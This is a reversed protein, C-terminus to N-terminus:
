QEKEEKLEKIQKILEDAVWDRIELEYKLHEILEIIEAEREKRGKLEAKLVSISVKTIEIVRVDGNIKGYTIDEIYKELEEIQKQLQKLTKM